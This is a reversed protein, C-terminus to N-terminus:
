NHVQQTFHCRLVPIRTTKKTCQVGSPRVRFGQVQLGRPTLSAPALGAQLSCPQSSLLLLIMGSMNSPKPTVGRVGGGGLLFYVAQLKIDPREKEKEKKRLLFSLSRGPLRCGAESTRVTSFLVKHEKCSEGQQLHTVGDPLHSCLVTLTQPQPCTQRETGTGRAACIDSVGWAERTPNAVSEGSRETPQPSHQSM